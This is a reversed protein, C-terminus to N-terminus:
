PFVQQLYLAAVLYLVSDFLLYSLMEYFEPPAMDYDGFCAEWTCPDLILYMARVFPFNPYYMMWQPLRRPSAFVSITINSCITCTWLTIAYGTMSASQASSFLSCYFMSLSVQCFAGFSFSCSLFASTRIVSSIWNFFMGELSSIFSRLSVTPPSTTSAMSLGTTICKLDM